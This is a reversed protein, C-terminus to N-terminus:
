SVDETGFIKGIRQWVQSMTHKDLLLRVAPYFNYHWHNSKFLSYEPLSFDIFIGSSGFEILICSHHRLIQHIVGVLVQSIRITPVLQQHRENLKRYMLLAVNLRFYLSTNSPPCFFGDAKLTKRDIWKTMSWFLEICVHAVSLNRSIRSTTRIISWPILENCGLDQQPSCGPSLCHNSSNGSMGVCPRRTLCGVM